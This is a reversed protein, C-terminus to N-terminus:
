RIISQLIRLTYALSTGSHGPYTQDIREMMKEIDPNSNWIFGVNNPPNYNKLFEINEPTLTTWASQVMSRIQQDSIIDFNPNM